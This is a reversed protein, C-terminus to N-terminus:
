TLWKGLIYALPMHKLVYEDVMKKLNSENERGRNSEMMWRLVNKSRQEAAEEQGYGYQHLHFRRVRTLLEIPPVPEPLEPILVRLAAATAGRKSPKPIRFVGKMQASSLLVLLNEPARSDSLSFCLCSLNALPSCLLAFLLSLTWLLTNDIRRYSHTKMITRLSHYMSVSKFLIRCSSIFANCTVLSSSKRWDKLRLVVMLMVMM